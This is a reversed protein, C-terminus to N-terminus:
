ASMAGTTMCTVMEGQSAEESCFICRDERYRFFIGKNRLTSSLGVETITKKATKNVLAEGRGEYREWCVLLNRRVMESVSPSM